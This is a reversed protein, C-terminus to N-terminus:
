GLERGTVFYQKVSLLKTVYMQVAFLFSFTPFSSLTPSLSLFLLHFLLFCLFITLLCVFPLLVFYFICMSSFYFLFFPIWFFPLVPVFLFYHLIFYLPFVSLFFLSPFLFMSITSSPFYLFLFLPFFSLFFSLARAKVPCLSTDSLM